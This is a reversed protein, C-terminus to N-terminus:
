SIKLLIENIMLVNEVFYLMGAYMIMLGNEVLDWLVKKNDDVCKWRLIVHKFRGVMYFWLDCCVPM